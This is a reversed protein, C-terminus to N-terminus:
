VRVTRPRRSGTAIQHRGAIAYAPIAPAAVYRLNQGPLLFPRDLIWSLSYPGAFLMPSARRGDYRQIEVKAGTACRM